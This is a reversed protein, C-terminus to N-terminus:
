SILFFFMRIISTISHFNFQFIMILDSDNVPLTSSVLRLFSAHSPPSSSRSNSVGPGQTQSGSEHHTVRVVAGNPTHLPWDLTQQSM